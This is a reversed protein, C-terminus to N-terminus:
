LHIQFGTRRTEFRPEPVHENKETSRKGTHLTLTVAGVRTLVTCIGRATDPM